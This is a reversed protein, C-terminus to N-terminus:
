NKIRILLSFDETASIKVTFGAPRISFPKGADQCGPSSYTGRM